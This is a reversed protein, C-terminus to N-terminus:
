LTLEGPSRAPSHSPPFDMNWLAAIDHSLALIDHSPHCRPSCCSQGGQRSLMTCKSSLVPVLGSFLLSTAAFAKLAVMDVM